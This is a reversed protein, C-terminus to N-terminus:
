ETLQLLRRMSNPVNLEGRTRSQTLQCNGVTTIGLFQVRVGFRARNRESDCVCVCVCVCM